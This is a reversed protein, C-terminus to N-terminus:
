LSAVIGDIAGDAQAKDAGTIAPKVKSPKTGPWVNFGTNFKAITAVWKGDVMVRWGNEAHKETSWQRSAKDTM